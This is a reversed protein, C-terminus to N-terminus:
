AIYNKFYGEFVKATEWKDNTYLDHLKGMLFRRSLGENCEVFWMNKALSQFIKTTIHEREKRNDAESCRRLLTSIYTRYMVVDPRYFRIENSDVVSLISYEIHVMKKKLFVTSVQTVVRVNAAHSFSASGLGHACPLSHIPEPCQMCFSHYRAYVRKYRLCVYNIVSPNIM